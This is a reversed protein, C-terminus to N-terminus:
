SFLIELVNTNIRSICKLNTDDVKWVILQIVAGPRARSQDVFVVSIEIQLLTDGLDKSLRLQRHLRDNESVAGPQQFICEDEIDRERIAVRESPLTRSM